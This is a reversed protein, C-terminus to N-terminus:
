AASILRQLRDVLMPVEWEYRANKPNVATKDLYQMYLGELIVALKFVSFVIYFDINEISRGSKKEYLALLTEHDAFGEGATIRPVPYGSPIYDPVPMPDDPDGWYSLLWGVDAFPDGITAM